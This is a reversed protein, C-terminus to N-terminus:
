TVNAQATPLVDIIDGQDIVIAHETLVTNRPIVPVVWRGTLILDVTKM